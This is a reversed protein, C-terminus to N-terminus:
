STATSISIAHPNLTNGVRILVTLRKMGATRVQGQVEAGRKGGDQLKPSSLYDRLPLHQYSIIVTTRAGLVVVNSTTVLVDVVVPVMNVITLQM